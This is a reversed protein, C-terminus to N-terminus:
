ESGYTDATDFFNVGADLCANVVETAADVDVKAGFANTGLGVSSVMLGAAGLPSYEVSYESTSMGRNDRTAESRLRVARRDGARAAGTLQQRARGATTETSFPDFGPRARQPLLIWHRSAPISPLRDAAAVLQRD